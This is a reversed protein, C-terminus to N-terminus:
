GEDHALRKEACVWDLETAMSLILYPERVVVGTLEHELRLGETGGTVLLVTGDSSDEVPIAVAEANPANRSVAVVRWKGTVGTESEYSVCM